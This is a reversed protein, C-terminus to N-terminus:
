HPGRSRQGANFETITMSTKGVRVRGTARFWLLELWFRWFGISELSANTIRVRCQNGRTPVFTYTRFWGHGREAQAERASAAFQKPTFPALNRDLERVDFICTRSQKKISLYRVTVTPNLSTTKDGINEVEFELGGIEREPRDERIRVRLAPRAILWGFLKGFVELIVRLM